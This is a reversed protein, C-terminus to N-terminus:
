PRTRKKQPSRGPQMPPDPDPAARATAIAWAEDFSLQGDEHLRALAPESRRMTDIKVADTLSLSGDTVRDALTPVRKTLDELEAKKREVDGVVRRTMQYAEDLSPGGPDLAHRALGPNHKVVFQAQLRSGEEAPEDPDVMAEGIWRQTKNMHARCTVNERVIHAVPDDGQYTEFRPEVGAIACAALRCKGDIVQGEADILIPRLLGSRAISRALSQLEDDPMMPLLANVPHLAHTM